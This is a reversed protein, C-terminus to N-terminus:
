KVSFRSKLTSRNSETILCGGPTGLVCSVQKTKTLRYIKEPASGLVLIPLPFAPSCFSSPTIQILANAEAARVVNMENAPSHEISRVFLDVPSYAAPTQNTM